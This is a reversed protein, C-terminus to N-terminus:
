EYRLAEAPRLQSAKLAPYVTAALTIAMASLLILVLDPWMELSVPLRDIYYIDAPLKIFQFKKLALSLLVGGSTGAFIGSFGIILGESIFIGRVAASSMGLAKLIGIDKTKEVVLVILTSAINFAAVLIILTLIVFMTLKELELAAFFNRNMEMWTRLYYRFGLSKQLERKVADVPYADKVRVSVASISDGMGLIKQATSLGTFVLNMDYEYMGSDFIGAVTLTFREAMPSYISITGGMSLGLASALEKGIMAKGGTLGDLSGQKLYRSIGTVQRESEPEIGKIAVAMFRGEQEILIQGQVFPSSASIKNSASIAKSLGLYDERRLTDYSYVTIHAYNGIIRERLDRDFGSMVGIVVILAMVGIAIGLISIVSILSIFREKRKTLLYRWSIFLTANM